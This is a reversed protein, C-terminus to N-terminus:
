TRFNRAQRLLPTLTTDLGLLRRCDRVMLYRWVAMSIVGGIAAGHIGSLYTLPPVVMALVLLGVLSARTVRKEHKTMALLTGATGASATLLAGGCMIQLVGAAGAYEEGFVTSLLLPGSIFFPVAIIATGLVMGSTLWTLLRQMKAHQNEAYLSSIIPSAVMIFITTPVAILVLISSAIRYLGVSAATTMLGLLLIVLNGNLVHMSQTIAMPLASRWWGRVTERKPRDATTKPLKGRLMIAGVVCAVGAAICGGLMAKAPTLEVAMSSALFLLGSYIFPRVVADPVQGRVIEHLGRLTAGQVKGLAVLPVMALGALVAIGVSSNSGKGFLTMWAVVIVAVAGCLMAVVRMAWVVVGRLDRWEQRTRRAAVERTVLQPMGFETPIGLMSIISMAVGYVGYAEVGLGRALQVGVLFGLAMGVIRLGATGTVAKILLPGLGPKSLYVRLRNM